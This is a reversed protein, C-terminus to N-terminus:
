YIQTGVKTIKFVATGGKAYYCKHAWRQWLFMEYGAEAISIVVSGLKAKSIVVPGTKAMSILESGVKVM